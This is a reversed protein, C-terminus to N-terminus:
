EAQAGIDENGLKISYGSGNPCNVPFGGYPDTEQPFSNKKLTHREDTPNVLSVNAKGNSDVKGSYCQWHTFTGDEFGLNPPCQAHVTLCFFAPAFFMLWYKNRIADVLM